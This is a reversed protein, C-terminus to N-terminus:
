SPIQQVEVYDQGIKAAAQQMPALCTSVIDQESALDKIWIVNLSAFACQNSDLIPVAIAHVDPGFDVPEAWYDAERAGYGQARTENVIKKIQDGQAYVRDQKHGNAGIHAIQHARDKESCHALYARGLASQMMSPRLGYATRNPALPGKIRTTELIEMKGTKLPIAIDSPWRITRQLVILHPSALETLLLGRNSSLLFNGFSFPLEYRGEALLRRVWKRDQLTSLIRLLTSNSLGTGARLDALSSQGNEALFQIVDMARQLSQIRKPGSPIM